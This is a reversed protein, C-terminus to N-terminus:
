WLISRSGQRVSAAGEPAESSKRVYSCSQLWCGDRLPAASCDLLVHDKSSKKSFGQQLASTPLGCGISGVIASSHTQLFKM